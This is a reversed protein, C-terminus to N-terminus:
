LLFDLLYFYFIQTSTIIQNHNILDFFNLTNITTITINKINKCANFFNINKDNFLFLIKKNINIKKATLLDKINKTKRINSNNFYHNDIFIFHKKKLYLSYLIALFKEKKNIKKNTNYYHPGFIVGGGKWLPSRISGARANGTGKQRWPKKGGGRVQSKTKTAALHLKKNKLQSNYIKYILGVAKKTFFNLLIKNIM